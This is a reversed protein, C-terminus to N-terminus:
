AAGGFARVPFSAAVSPPAWHHELYRAAERAAEVGCLRNLVYLAADIGATV